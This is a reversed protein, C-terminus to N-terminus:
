DVLGFGGGVRLLVRGIIEDTGVQGLARSDTSGNRNDGMVFVKDKEVTFTVVNEEETGTAKMIKTTYFDSRMKSFNDPRYVYSEDLLVGDVSVEWENFDITVEQGETAIIRKIIPKAKGLIPNEVNNVTLVVIDGSEPTYFLNSIILKDGDKLTELMSSGDVSVYRFVFLFLIVMLVLAYCFTEVCDFVDNFVKERGRVVKETGGAGCLLPDGLDPNTQESDTEAVPAVNEEEFSGNTEAAKNGNEVGYENSNDNTFNFDAM